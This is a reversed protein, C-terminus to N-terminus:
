QRGPGRRPRVGEARDLGLVRGSRVGWLGPGDGRPGSANAAQPGAWTMTPKIGALMGQRGACGHQLHACRPHQERVSPRDQRALPKDRAPWTTSSPGSGSHRGRWRGPGARHRRQGPVAQAPESARARARASSRATRPYPRVALGLGRRATHSGVTGVREVFDGTRVGRVRVRLPRVGVRSAPRGCRVSSVSALRRVDVGPCQVGSAHADRASVPRDCRVGSVPRASASRPRPYPSWPAAPMPVDPGARRAGARQVGVTSKYPCRRRREAVM